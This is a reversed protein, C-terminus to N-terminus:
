FLGYSDDGFQERERQAKHHQRIVYLATSDLLEEAEPGFLTNFDRDNLKLFVQEGLELFSLHFTTKSPVPNGATYEATTYMPVGARVVQISLLQLSVGPDFEVLQDPEGRRRAYRRFRDGSAFGLWEQKLHANILALEEDSCDRWKM